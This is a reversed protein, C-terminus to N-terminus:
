PKAYTNLVRERMSIAKKDGAVFDAGRQILQFDEETFWFRNEKSQLNPELSNALEYARAPVDKLKAEDAFWRNVEEPHKKYYDYAEDLSKLIARALKDESTFKGHTVGRRLLVLACVKGAQISRVKGKAELIAPIPDFGALAHFQGWQTASKNASQILPLHEPMALHIVKVQEKAVNKEQLSEYFVREAAAGVPLGITKGKLEAVDSIKSELPVYTSTRNYMLRGIGLWDASKAFLAAAPQDATFIVDLAGALAAENLEPGFTKGIFEAEIGNKKLIPTRKLVQVIQGQLTWPIQWGIRVKDNGQASSASFFIMLSFLFFKM